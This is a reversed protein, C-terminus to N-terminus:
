HKRVTTDRPSSLIPRVEVLAPATSCPMQGGDAAPLVTDALERVQYEDDEEALRPLATIADLLGAAPNPPPPM